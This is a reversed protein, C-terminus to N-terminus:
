WKDRVSRLYIFLNEETKPIETGMSQFFDPCDNFIERLRFFPNIKKEKGLTAEFPSAENHHHSVWEQMEKLLDNEPELTLSFKLNNEIYDHGPNIKIHDPLSLIKSNLTQFLTKPDGGRYCNGVGGHFLTDGTFIEKSGTADGMVYCLHCFTHGPTELAKLSEGEAEFAVDGEKLVEDLGPVLGVTKPHAFIQAKTAEKLELNGAVHDKHEHTNLIRKLSLSNKKLFNVIQEASYPDICIAEGSRESYVLYTYNRLPSHTYIQKVSLNRM